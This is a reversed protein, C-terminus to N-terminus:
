VYMYVHMGALTLKAYKSETSGRVNVAVCRYYGADKLQLNIITLNSTNIGTAGSPIKGNQKEWYHSSAGDVECTFSVNTFDNKLNASQSKPNKIIVPLNVTSYIHLPSFFHAINQLLDIAYYLM